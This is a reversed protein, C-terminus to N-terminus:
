ARAVMTGAPAATRAPAAEVRPYEKVTRYLADRQVPIKGAERIAHVMAAEAM